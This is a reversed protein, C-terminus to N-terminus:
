RRGRLALAILALTLSISLWPFVDGTTRYLTAAGRASVDAILSQVGPTTTDQM